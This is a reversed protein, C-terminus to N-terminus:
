WLRYPRSAAADLLLWERELPPPLLLRTIPPVVGMWTGLGLSTGGLKPDDMDDRDSCLPPDADDTNRPRGPPSGAPVDDDRVCPAPDPADVPSSSLLLGCFIRRERRVGVEDNSSLPESCVFFAPFRGM